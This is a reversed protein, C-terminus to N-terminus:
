GKTQYNYCSTSYFHFPVPCTANIHITVHVSRCITKREKSDALLLEQAEANESIKFTQLKLTKMWDSAEKTMLNNGM